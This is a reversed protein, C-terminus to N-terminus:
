RIKSFIKEILILKIPKKFCETIPTSKVYKEEYSTIIYFRHQRFIQSNNMEKLEVNMVNPYPILVKAIQKSNKVNQIIAKM